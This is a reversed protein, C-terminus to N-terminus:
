VAAEDSEIDDERDEEAGGGRDLAYTRVYEVDMDDLIHDEGIELVEVGAPLSV